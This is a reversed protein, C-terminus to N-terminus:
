PVPFMNLIVWDKTTIAGFPPSSIGEPDTKGTVQVAGASAAVKPTFNEKSPPVVQFIASRVLGLFGRLTLQRGQITYAIEYSYFGPSNSTILAGDRLWAELFEKARTYRNDRDSDGTEKKGFDIRVINYPSKDYLEQQQEPSIIDYPPALLEEGSGKSVKSINFLVGKFPVVEAM